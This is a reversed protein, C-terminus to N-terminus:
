KCNKIIESIIIVLQGMICFTRWVIVATYEVIEIIERVTSVRLLIKLRLNLNGKNM